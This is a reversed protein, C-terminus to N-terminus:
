SQFMEAMATDEDVQRNEQRAEDALERKVKRGDISVATTAGRVWQGIARVEDPTAAYKSAFRRVVTRSVEEPLGLDISWATYTDAPIRQDLDRPCPVKGGRKPADPEPSPDPAAAARAQADAAAALSPKALSPSLSMNHSRTVARSGNDRKKRKRSLAEARRKGRSERQRAADGRKCNQADLYKPWVLGTPTEVWVRLELLQALGPETVTLPLGTVATVAHSLTHGDSEFVGSRDFKGKLMFLLVAQSEWRLLRWTTTERTYLRVYDEDEYNM